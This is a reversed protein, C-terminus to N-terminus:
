RSPTGVCASGAAGAPSVAAGARVEASQAPRSGWLALVEDRVTTADDNAIQEGRRPAGPRNSSHAIGYPPDTVLVCGADPLSPLIERCDGHYLTVFDDQYYPEPLLDRIV